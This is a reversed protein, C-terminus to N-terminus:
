ISRQRFLLFHPNSSLNMEDELLVSICAGLLLTGIVILARWLLWARKIPNRSQGAQPSVKNAASCASNMQASWM